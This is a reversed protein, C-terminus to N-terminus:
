TFDVFWRRDFNVGTFCAGSMQTGSYMTHSIIHNCTDTIIIITRIIDGVSWLNRTRIHNINFPVVFVYLSARVFHRDFISWVRFRDTPLM